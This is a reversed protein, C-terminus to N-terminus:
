WSISRGGDYELEPVIVDEVRYIDGDWVVIHTNPEPRNTFEGDKYDRQPKFDSEKLNGDFPELKLILVDNLPGSEFESDNAYYELFEEVEDTDDCLKTEDQCSDFVLYKMSKERVIRAELKKDCEACTCYAPDDKLGISNWQHLPHYKLSESSGCRCIPECDVAKMEANYKSLYSDSYNNELCECDIGSPYVKKCKSCYKM